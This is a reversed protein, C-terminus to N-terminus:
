RIGLIWGERTAIELENDTLPPNFYEGLLEREDMDQLWRATAYADQEDNTRDGREYRNRFLSPFVEAIVSKGEPVEFGDFPWWHLCGEMETCRRLKHQWPIGAHTSKAVQGNVDFQFVSKAGATWRECLRFESAEGGRPNGERLSEVTTGQNTTPWYTVFDNLFSDWSDLNNRCLYTRPFGFAHDIAIIVPGKRVISDVCFEHIEKRNWNRVSSRNAEPPSRKLPLEGDRDPASAYVRLGQLRKSITGSGSYDIGIHTRFKVKTLENTQKSSRARNKPPRAGM